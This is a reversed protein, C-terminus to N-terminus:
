DPNFFCAAPHARKLGSQHDRKEQAFKIGEGDGPTKKEDARSGNAAYLGGFALASALFGATVKSWIAM